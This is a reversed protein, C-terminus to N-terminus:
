VKTRLQTQLTTGIVKLHGFREKAALYAYHAESNARMKENEVAMYGTVQQLAYGLEYDELQSFEEPPLLLYNKSEM